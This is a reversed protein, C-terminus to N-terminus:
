LYSSNTTNYVLELIEDIRIETRRFEAEEKKKHHKYM